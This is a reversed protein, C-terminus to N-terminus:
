SLPRVSLDAGVFVPTVGDPHNSKDHQRLEHLPPCMPGGRRLCTDCRRIPPITTNVHNTYPRVQTDVRLVHLEGVLISPCMPGGGVSVPTVADPHLLQRASTAQTPASRRTRGCPVCSKPSSPRVCLDAGVILYTEM